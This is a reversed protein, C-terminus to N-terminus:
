DHEPGKAGGAPVAGGATRHGAMLMEAQERTQPLTAVLRRQRELAPSVVEPMGNSLAAVAAALCEPCATLRGAAAGNEAAHDISTFHFEAAAIRRGCWAEGQHGAHNRAICTVYEPRPEPVAKAGDDDPAVPVDRWEVQGGYFPAWAQQLKGGRWRLEALVRYERGRDPVPTDLFREDMSM